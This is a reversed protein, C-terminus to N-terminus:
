PCSWAHSPPSSLLFEFRTSTSIKNTTCKCHTTSLYGWILPTALDKLVLVVGMWGWPSAGWSAKGLQIATPPFGQGPCDQRILPTPLVTCRLLFYSVIYCCPSRITRIILPVTFKITLYPCLINYSPTETRASILFVLKGGLSASFYFCIPFYFLLSLSITWSTQSFIQTRICHTM